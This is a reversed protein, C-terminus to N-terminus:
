YNFVKRANPILFMFEKMTKINLFHTLIKFKNNKSKKSKSLNKFTENAKRTSSGEVVENSIARFAKM